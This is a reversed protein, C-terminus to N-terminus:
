KAYLPCRKLIYQLTSRYADQTNLFAKREQSYVSEGRDNYISLELTTEYNQTSSSSSFSNVKTKSNNDSWVNGNTKATGSTSGFNTQSGRNVSVIGDVVYEVGLINCIDEMTFGKINEKTVGAKILLANTTRPDLITFVGAHQALLAHAETQVKESLVDATPQGDKIFAMPLIAVKNHHSAMNGGQSKAASGGGQAGSGGAPETQSPLPQKNIVEIRGSAFTIKLVDIKKVTYVLSEGDYVFKIADDTIETIKGVLEDGNLKLIIDNKKGQAFLTFTFASALLFLFLKKM